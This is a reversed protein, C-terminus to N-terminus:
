NTGTAVAGTTEITTETTTETTTTETVTEEVMTGTTETVTPLETTEEAVPKQACGALLVACGLVLLLKKM